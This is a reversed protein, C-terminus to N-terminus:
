EHKLANVPNTRAAKLSHFTITLVAIILAFIAALIFPTLGISTKYEFSQMWKDMTLWAIFTAPIIALFILFIFEKTVLLVINSNSSGLVKRISLERTRKGIVFSSLGFLGLCSIFITLISFDTFLVGLKQESVYQRNIVEDLFQGDFPWDSNFYEEYTKKILDLTGSPDEGTTKIYIRARLDNERFPLLVIPAIKIKISNFHFDKVVGIVEGDNIARGLAKDGWGFNVAATENIIFSQISDTSRDREFNRGDKFEIDMMDIFDYNVNMYSINTIESLGDESEIGFFGESWTYGLTSSATAVSLINPYNLLEERFAGFKKSSLREYNYIMIVNDRNFGLDMNTIYKQQGSVILTVAIMTISITFQFGVLIKRLVGKASSSIKQGRLVKIPLFSSLYFAPYSGSVFGVFITIIIIGAIFGPQLLSLFSLQKGSLTNFSPIIVLVAALAIILAIISLIMSEGIFQRILLSRHAGIVKRIGVERSRGTARATAMNMYNICAIILIFIGIIGFVIIYDKDGISLDGTLKRGFHIDALPTAMLKYDANVNNQDVIPRMYKDYFGPFKDLVNQMITKDKLLVFSFSKDTGWFRGPAKNRSYDYPSYSETISAMSRLCEVKIHQNSPPDKIVGTVTHDGYGGLIEIVKGVPDENGFYKNALSQTIVLTRPRNLANEASGNIFEYTFVDFITSDCNVIGFEGFVKNEYKFFVKGKYVWLRCYNEIEPYEDKLTPALFISTLAYQDNKGSLTKEAELRYIRKHKKHHKDYGLEDTIYMMILISCTIGLALGFINIGSYFINKYFNKFATTIFNKIM